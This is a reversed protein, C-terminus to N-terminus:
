LSLILSNSTDVHKFSLAMGRFVPLLDESLANMAPLRRFSESGQDHLLTQLGLLVTFVKHHQTGHVPFM